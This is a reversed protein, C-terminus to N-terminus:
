DVTSRAQDQARVVAAWEAYGLMALTAALWDRAADDLTAARLDANDKPRNLHAKHLLALEPRLYNIGDVVHLAREWPLRVRGDKKFVWADDGRQLLIDAVWPQGAERRLWLQEQDARLDDGALLPKIAGDFPQWLHWGALHDRLGPLDALRIAVDTDDHARPPAGIRAARGGAIWWRVGSGDLLDAVEAPTLAAWPGYLRAFTADDLQNV